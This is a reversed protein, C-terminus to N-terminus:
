EPAALSLGSPGQSARRTPWAWLDRRRSLSASAQCSSFSLASDSCRKPASEARQRLFHHSLIDSHAKDIEEILQVCECGLWPNARQEVSQSYRGSTSALRRRIRAVPFPRLHDRIAVLAHGPGGGLRGHLKRKFTLASM